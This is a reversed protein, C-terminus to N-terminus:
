EVSLDFVLVGNGLVSSRNVKLISGVRIQGGTIKADSPVMLDIEKNSALNKVHYSGKNVVSLVRYKSEDTIVPPSPFSLFEVRNLELKDDKVKYYILISDNQKLEALGIKTEQPGASTFDLRVISTADTVAFEKKEDKDLPFSVWLANSSVNLVAAPVAEYKMGGSDEAPGSDKKLLWYFGAAVVLVAAAAMIIKNRDRKPQNNQEEM